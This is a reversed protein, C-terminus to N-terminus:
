SAKYTDAPAQRSFKEMLKQYVVAMLLPTIYQRFFSTKGPKKVLFSLAALGIGAGIVYSAPIYPKEETFRITDGQPTIEEITNKNAM